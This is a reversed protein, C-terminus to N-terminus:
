QKSLSGVLGTGLDGTEGDDDTKHQYWGPGWGWKLSGELM